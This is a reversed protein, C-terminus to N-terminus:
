PWIQKPVNARLPNPLPLAFCLSWIRSGCLSIQKPVIDRLPNPWLGLIAFFFKLQAM